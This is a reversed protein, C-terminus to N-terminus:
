RGQGTNIYIHYLMKIVILKIIYILLSKYQELWYHLISYIVMQYYNLCIFRFHFYYSSVYNVLKVRDCKTHRHWAIVTIEIVM